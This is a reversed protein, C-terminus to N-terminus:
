CRASVERRAREIWYYVTGRSVGAAAAIQKASAGADLLALLEGNTPAKSRVRRVDEPCDMGRKRAARCRRLATKPCVGLSNAIEEYTMGRRRLVAVMECERDTLRHGHTM